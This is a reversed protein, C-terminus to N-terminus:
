FAICCSEDYVGVIRFLAPLKEERAIVEGIMARRGYMSCSFSEDLGRRFLISTGRSLFVKTLGM